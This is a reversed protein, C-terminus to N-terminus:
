DKHALIAGILNTYDDSWAKTEFGRREDALPTRFRNLTAPQRAAIVVITSSVPIDSKATIMKKEAFGVGGAERVAALVPDRLELHRNSLHYVLVGDAKLKSLYIRAAEITLLHAPVSDSSFADIIMLDQSNPALKALTLRADGTITEIPAKACGKLYTFYKPDNAFRVVLPDIEYYSLHDQPRVYAALAGTGLGVTAWELQPKQAQLTTVVQGIGTQPAYYTLPQCRRAPDLSQAGHLTTGHAMRRIPGILPDNAESLKVVGFFSRDIAIVNGSEGVVFAALGIATLISAFWVARSRILFAAIMALAFLIRVYPSAIESHDAPVLHPVWIAAGCAIIAGIGLITPSLSLILKDDKDSHPRALSALILIIPYEYVGKFILPAVFANFSGGLVGGVSLCLYFLTLHSVDPKLRALTQHCMLATLFFCGLHILLQLGVAMGAVPIVYLCCAAAAAQLTGVLMPDWKSKEAFAIIFTLLYLALPVIWLFPASAVDTTLQTTVGLLLSSPAAAIMIWGFLTKVPIAATKASTESPATTVPHSTLLLLIVFGVFVNFGFTWGLSQQSLRTLPEVLVPYAILAMLSGANSAAYLGYIKSTQGERIHRSYWSQLLPATASLAAFPAGISLTLTGLIWGIPHIPDPQGMIANLHLPLSMGALLLVSIHILMQIRVARVKQLWHAYLYGLLLAM